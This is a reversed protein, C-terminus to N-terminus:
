LNDTRKKVADRTKSDGRLAEIAVLRRKAQDVKDVVTQLAQVSKMFEGKLDSGQGIVMMDGEEDESTMNIMDAYAKARERVFAESEATRYYQARYADRVAKLGGPKGIMADMEIDNKLLQLVVVNISALQSDGKIFTLGSMIRSLIDVGEGFVEKNRAEQTVLVNALKDQYEILDSDSSVFEGLFQIKNSSAFFDWNVMQKTYDVTIAGLKVGFISRLYNRAWFAEALTELNKDRGEKNLQFRYKQTTGFAKIVSRIMALNHRNLDNVMETQSIDLTADRLAAKREAELFRYDLRNAPPTWGFGVVQEIVGDALRVNISLGQIQGLMANMQKTYFDKLGQLDVKLKAPLNVVVQGRVQVDEKNAM